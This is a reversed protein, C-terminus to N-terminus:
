AIKGGREVGGKARRNMGGRGRALDRSPAAHPDAELLPLRSSSRTWQLFVPFKRGAGWSDLSMKTGVNCEM